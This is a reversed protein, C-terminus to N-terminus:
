EVNITDVVQRDADPMVAVLIYVGKNSNLNTKEYEASGIEGTNGDDSGILKPNSYISSEPSEFVFYDVNNNRIVQATVTNENTNHNLDVSVDPSENVFDSAIDFYISAGMAVLGVTIALILVVGLVPSVGKNNINQVM